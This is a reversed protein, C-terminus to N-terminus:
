RGSLSDAKATVYRLADEEPLPKCIHFGQLEHCGLKTLLTRQSESEVGQGVVRLGLNCSVSVTADLVAQRHSEWADHAVLSRAIKVSDLSFRKIQAFCSFDAGFDHVSVRTGLSSLERLITVSSCPDRMITHEGLELELMQPNIGSSFLHAGVAMPLARSRFQTASLNVSVSLATGSRDKAKRIFACAKALVWDGIEDIIGNQEAISLFQKPTLLGVDQNRWRLLAEFGTVDATLASIKPQYHLEFEGRELAQCLSPGVTIRSPVGAHAAMEYFEMHGGGRAKARLLAAEARGVIATVTTNASDQIAIGMCASLKVEKEHLRLPNACALRLKKAIAGVKVVGETDHILVAFRDAYLHAVIDHVRLSNRLRAGVSRLVEDGSTRGFQENVCHFKDIDVLILACGRSSRPHEKLAEAIRERMVGENPLGTILDQAAIRRLDERLHNKKLESGLLVPTPELVKLMDERAFNPRHGFLTVCGVWPEDVAFAMEVGFGEEAPLGLEQPVNRREAGNLARVFPVSNSPSRLTGAALRDLQAATPEGNGWQAAKRADEGRPGSEWFCGNDFGCHLCLLALVDRMADAPSQKVELVKLIAARLEERQIHVKVETVDTMWGQLYGLRGDDGHWAHGVSHLWRTNGAVAIRYQANVMAGSCQSSEIAKGLAERDRPDVLELFAPLSHPANKPSVGLVGLAHDSWEITGENPSLKWLAMAPRQVRRELRASRKLFDAGWLILAGRNLARGYFAYALGASALLGAALTLWPAWIAPLGALSAHAVNFHLEWARGAMETPLRTELSAREARIAQGKQEGPTTEFLLNVASAGSMEQMAAAANRSGVDFLKFDINNLRARELAGLVLDNLRFGIGVSGMYAARREDVTRAPMGARYVPLRMALAMQQNPGDTRILRGSSVLKGTDRGYELADPKFPPGGIDLGFSGENGEMPEIYTIVYHAAREPKGRIEFDPHGRPNLSTDSRVREEFKARDEAPVYEAYNIIQVGPLRERLNLQSVYRNFEGRTRYPSARFFATTAHVIESYAEIQSEIAGRVEIAQRDLTAQARHEIFAGVFLLASVSLVAGGALILGPLVFRRREPTV